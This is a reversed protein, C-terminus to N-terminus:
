YVIFSVYFNKTFYIAIFDNTFSIFHVKSKLEVTSCNFRLEYEKGNIIEIRANSLNNGGEEKNEELLSNTCSESMKFRFSKM